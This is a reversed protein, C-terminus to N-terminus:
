VDSDTPTVFTTEGVYQEIPSSNVVTNDNNMNGQEQSELILRKVEKEASKNIKQTTKYHKNSIEVFQDFSYCYFFQGSLKYFEDILETRPGIRLGCVKEIWDEKIDNSIFIIPKQKQLACDIMQRWIIYDGHSNDTKRRDKYGPPILKERREKAEAVYKNRQTEDYDEGLRGEYLTAIREKYEDNLILNACNKKGKELVVVVNQLNKKLENIEAQSLFPHKRDDDLSSMLESASKVMNSYMSIHGGLVESNRDKHYEYAVQYPMWLHEKIDEMLSLIQSATETSYRYIDLLVNTDLVIIANQMLSKVDQLPAKYFGPFKSKM